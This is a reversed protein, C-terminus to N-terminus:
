FCNWKDQHPIPNRWYEDGGKKQNRWYEEEGARSKFKHFKMFINESIEEVPKWLKSGWKRRDIYSLFSLFHKDKTKKGISQM